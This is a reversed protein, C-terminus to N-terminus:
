SVPTLGLEAVATGEAVIRGDEVVAFAPFGRVGFVSRALHSDDDQRVVQGVASLAGVYEGADAEPGVVVALVDTRPGGPQGAQAVFLPLQVTCASCGPSFFAVLYRPGLTSDTIRDGTVTDAAFGALGAGDTTAPTFLDQVRGGALRDLQEAQERLRRIVGFSFLLNVVGLAAVVVVVATGM